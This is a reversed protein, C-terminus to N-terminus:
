NDSIAFDIQVPHGALDAAVSELIRRFESKEVLSKAFSYIRPFEIALRNPSSITVGSAKRLSAGVFDPVDKLLQSWFQKASGPSFQAVVFFQVHGCFDCSFIQFKKGVPELGRSGNSELGNSQDSADASYKGVGCIRCNRDATQSLRRRNQEIQLLVRDVEALLVAASELCAHEDEVICKAFLENALVMSPADPFLKEVNLDDRGPRNFYWFPLTERGTVMSWLVKGLSFVDFTPRLDEVRLEHAWPPMWARTGVNGVTESIRSHTEDQFFVLGFDGLVLSGDDAIFINQPKIDRHFINAKHLAAVGEVLGRFAQLASPFNGRFRDLRQSLMGGSCFRTVYWQETANVDLIKILNPHEVTQMATIERKLREDATASDRAEEPSHLVKLAGFDKERKHFEDLFEGLSKILAKRAKTREGDYQVSAQLSNISSIFADIAAEGGRLKSKDVVRHVIGQGGRGLESEIEWRKEYGTGAM